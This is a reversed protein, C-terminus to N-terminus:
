SEPQLTVARSEEEAVAGLFERLAGYEAAPIERRSVTLSRKVVLVQRGGEGVIEYSSTSKLGPGELVRGAPLKKLSQGAPLSLRVESTESFLYDFFVPHRRTPYAAIRTVYPFRVLHPSLVETGGARVLFRPVGIRISMRLPDDPGSPTTAQHGVLAAGPCIRAMFRTLADDRESPRTESIFGAFEGRQQGWADIRYTGELDGAPGVTATVSWHIRNREPPFLPTEVLDGTGDAKVVLVNAGQDTWPLDGFPTSESTPDMFLYGDPAPVAAIAHNFIASPYDRETLGADRTLILVPYGRLDVAQLMAILLTAKDKCDGYRYKLVAASDHPQFGGIGLEIAVYNVKGQVFEYLRRTKERPDSLGATLERAQRSVEEGPVMRERALDWYWRAIGNWQAADIRQEFWGLDKLYIQVRPFVDEDPPMDTERKLAPVDRVRWRHTVGGGSEERAYEPSGRVSFHLRFSEPARVTLTKLRAPVTEQFDFGDPLYFLNRVDARYRYELVAGPVVGPFAIVRVKSDSYLEYSGFAAQDFIQQKKVEVRKGAPSTVAAKVETISLGPRYGIGVRDFEEAGHATLVKIRRSRELRATTPTLVEIELSEELLVADEGAEIDAAPGARGARPGASLLCM